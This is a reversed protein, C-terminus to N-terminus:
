DKLVLQMGKPIKKYPNYGGLMSALEVYMVMNIFYLDTQCEKLRRYARKDFLCGDDRVRELYMWQFRNPLCKKDFYSSFRRYLYEAKRRDEATFIRDVFNNKELIRILPLPIGVIEEPTRGAVNYEDVDFLSQATKELGSKYLLEKVGRHTSYYLRIIYAGAEEENYTRIPIDPCFYKAVEEQLNIFDTPDYYLQTDGLWFVFDKEENEEMVYGRHIIFRRYKEERFARENYVIVELYQEGDTNTRVQAFVPSYKRAKGSEVISTYVTFPM